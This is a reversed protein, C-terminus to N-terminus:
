DFEESRNEKVQTIIFRIICYVIFTYIIYKIADLHHLYIVIVTTAIIAATILGMQWIRTFLERGRGWVRPRLSWNLPNVFGNMILIAYSFYGNKVGGVLCAICVVGVMIGFYLKAAPSSTSTPMDTAMYVAGLFLGGLSFQINSGSFLFLFLTFGALMGFPIHWSIRRRLLLYIGGLILFFSSYEGISGSVKYFLSNFFENGFINIQQINLIERDHWIFSAGMVVPFFITMFERGVLAPNFRNHGLGGWLLKGFLVATAGGFAVIYLPTFPGVTFTLLIGTVIASGDGVSNTNKCFVASFLFETILASAVSVLIVAIPYFSYALSSIIISPILAIIVDTMVKSASDNARVFPNYVTKNLKM